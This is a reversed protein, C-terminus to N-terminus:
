KKAAIRNSVIISFEMAPSNIYKEHGFLRWKKWVSDYRKATMPETTLIQRFAAKEEEPRAIIEKAKWVTLRPINMQNGIQDIRTTLAKDDVDFYAGSLSPIIIMLLVIAMLSSLIMLLKNTKQEIKWMCIGIVLLVNLIYVTLVIKADWSSNTNSAFMIGILVLSNLLTVLSSAFEWRIPKLSSLLLTFVPIILFSNVAIAREPDAIGFIFAEVGLMAGFIVWYFERQSAWMKVTGNGLSIITFFGKANEIMGFDFFRRTRQPQKSNSISDPSKDDVKLQKRM